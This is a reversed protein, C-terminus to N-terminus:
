GEFGISLCGRALSAMRGADACSASAWTWQCYVGAECEIGADNVLQHDRRDDVRV